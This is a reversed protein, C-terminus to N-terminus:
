HTQWHRNYNCISNSTTLFGNRCLLDALSATEPIQPARGIRCNEVCNQDGAIAVRLFHLPAIAARRFSCITRIGSLRWASRLAREPQPRTRYQKM